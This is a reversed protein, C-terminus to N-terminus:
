RVLRICVLSADDYQSDGFNSIARRISENLLTEVLSDTSSQERDLAVLYQALDEYRWCDWIGDSAVVVHYSCDMPPYIITVSPEFTLGFQHAYFDGLARTMAICTTDRSVSKPTVAYVAPEYRVNTPHLGNGGKLAFGGCCLFFLVVMLESGVHLFFFFM